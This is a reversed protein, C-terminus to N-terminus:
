RKRALTLGDGIPTMALTVRDDAHLKANLARIAETAPDTKAPEVVSGGWLTNDILIVGGKRLLTLCREYYAEYNEKDADIFALDYSGAAGESVRADLTELAPRLHLDILEDVGADRWARQAVATAESDVDCALIHGGHPMALALWLTGYGTFTGVEIVNRAGLLEALLYMFQGQEPAVQMHADSREATVSRLHRLVEPERCGLDRVYSALHDNLGLSHTSM